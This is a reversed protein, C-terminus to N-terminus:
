RDEPYSTLVYWNSGTWRLVVLADHVQIASSKGQEISRGITERIDLRLVLNPRDGERAEWKAIEANKKDLVEAVVREATPLDTYTSAASIDPEAKLRARLEADTKGVHRSITHGGDAEDRLLNRSVSPTTAALTAAASTAATTEFTPVLPTRTIPGATLESQPIEDVTNTNADELKQLVFGALLMLVVVGLLLASRTRPSM